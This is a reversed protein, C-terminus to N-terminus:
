LFKRLEKEFKKISDENRKRFGDPVIYSLSCYDFVPNVVFRLSDFIDKPPPRSGTLWYITTGVIGLNEHVRLEIGSIINKPLPTTPTIDEEEILSFSQMLYHDPFSRIAAEKASALVEFGM